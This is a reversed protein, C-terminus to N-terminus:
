INLNCIYNYNWMSDYDFKSFDANAINNQALVPFDFKKNFYDALYEQEPQRPTPILVARRNLVALDCLTSYGSRCFIRKSSLILSALEEDSPNDIYQINGVQNELCANVNGRVIVLQREDKSYKYVFNQELISRQPEAGSIILLDADSGKINMSSFKALRSLPGLHIINKLETQSLIGSLSGENEADPVCCHNFESIYHLHLFKMIKASCKGLFGNDFNLQHTMYFTEAHKTFLGLRNDSFVYKIGYERVIRDCAKHEARVNFVFRLMSAYFPLSIMGKKGYRIITTPMDVFTLSPFRQKLYKLSNGGGGIIVDCGINLFHEILPVCRSAHGIGWDLPCLLIKDGKIM